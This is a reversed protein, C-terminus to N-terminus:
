GSSMVCIGGDDGKRSVRRLTLRMILVRRLDRQGSSRRLQATGREALCSTSGTAEEVEYTSSCGWGCSMVFSGGVEVWLFFFIDVFYIPPALYRQVDFM